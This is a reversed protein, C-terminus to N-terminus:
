VAATTTTLLRPSHNAAICYHCLFDHDNFLEWFCNNIPCGPVLYGNGVSRVAHNGTLKFVVETPFFGTITGMKVFLNNSTSIEFTSIRKMHQSLSMRPRGQRLFFCTDTTGIATAACGMDTTATADAPVCVKGGFCIIM